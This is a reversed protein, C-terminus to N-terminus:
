NLARTIIPTLSVKYDSAAVEVLATSLGPLFCALLDADRVAACLLGVAEMAAVRLPRLRERRAVELLLSVCHGLVMRWSRDDPPPLAGPPAAEFLTRLAEVADLKSEESVATSLRGQDDALQTLQLYLADVFM